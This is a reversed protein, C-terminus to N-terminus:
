RVTGGGTKCESEIGNRGGGAGNLVPRQSGVAPSPLENVNRLM